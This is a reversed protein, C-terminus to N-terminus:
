INNKIGSGLEKLKSILKNEDKQDERKEQREFAEIQRKYLNNQKVVKKMKMYQDIHVPVTLILGIIFGIFLTSILILTIPGNYGYSFFRVYVEANNQFIFVLSCLAIFIGLITFFKIFFGM